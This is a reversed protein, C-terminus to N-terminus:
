RSPPSCGSREAAIGEIAVPQHEAGPGRRQHGARLRQVGPLPLQRPAAPCPSSACRRASAPAARRRAAIRQRQQLRDIEVSCLCFRSLPPLVPMASFRSIPPVPTRTGAIPNPVEPCRCCARCRRSRRRRPAPAPSPAPPAPAAPRTGRCSAARRCPASRPASRCPPARARRSAPPAPARSWARGRGPSRASRRRRLRPPRQLLAQRRQADVPHVDQVQVVRLMRASRSSITPSSPASASSKRM